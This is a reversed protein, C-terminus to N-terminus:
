CLHNTNEQKRGITAALIAIAFLLPLLNHSDIATGANAYFYVLKDFGIGADGYIYLPSFALAYLGIPLAWWLLNSNILTRAISYWQSNALILIYSFFILSISVLAGYSFVVSMIIYPIILALWLANGWNILSSTIFADIGVATPLPLLTYPKVIQSPTQQALFRVFFDFTLIFPITACLIETATFTRSDNAILAFIVSAAMLYVAMLAMSIFVVVKAAKNKGFDLSRREAMRRHKLLIRIADFRKIRYNM